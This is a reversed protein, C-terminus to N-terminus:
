NVSLKVCDGISAAYRLVRHLELRHLAGLLLVHNVALMTGPSANAPGRRAGFDAAAWGTL